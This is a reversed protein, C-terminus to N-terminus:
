EVLCLCAITVSPNVDCSYHGLTQILTALTLGWCLAIGVLQRHDEPNLKQISGCGFFILIATGLFEALVLKWLPRPFSGPDSSSSGKLLNKFQGM